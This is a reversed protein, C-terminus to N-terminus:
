KKAEAVPKVAEVKLTITVEDGVVPGAEIAKSWKLNFEQRNIKTTATFAIRDNGFGDNVAGLMKGDFTVKKKVGKITLNGTLKFSSADGKIETSEFTMKPYKSVEFFDSGRLHDDRKANATNISAVDASAKLSSKEFKDALKVKGEFKSFHGDVTSIVMHPIEFGVKSHSDDITYEGASYKTQASAVSGALMLALLSFMVKM